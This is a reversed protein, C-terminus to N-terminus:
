RRLERGLHVHRACGPHLQGARLQRRRERDRRRTRAPARRRSRARAHTRTCRSRSRAPQTEASRQRTSRGTTARRGAPAPSTPPAASCRRTTVPQGFDVPGNGASTTLTPKVPNVIFCETASSDSSSPVGKAADGSFDARWCYRGAASVTATPVDGDYELDGGDVRRRRRRHRVHDHLRHRDAWLPPVLGDRQVVLSGGGHDKGQGRGHDRLRGPGEPHRARRGPDPQRRQGGADDQDEVHLRRLQLPHLGEADGDDVDVLPDGLCRELLVRRRARAAVPQHRGRLVRREPLLYQREQGHVVVALDEHEPQRDRLVQRRRGVRATPTTSTALLRLNADGCPRAASQEVEVRAPPDWEYVTITSTTGGNSFDSIVLLDGPKHVGTFKNGGQSPAGDATIKNQFFWFGQQADGSNDYRDSGFVLLECTPNGDADCVTDNAQAPDNPDNPLSYRAAFSHLLNDKDPLGGAGDKWLWNSVDQPDKSGGGTFIRATSTRSRRGRSRPRVPPTLPAPASTRFATPQTTPSRSRTVSTTGTTPRRPLPHAVRSTASWADGDLQFRGTDHVALATTVLIGGACCALGCDCLVFRRRKGGVLRFIRERM